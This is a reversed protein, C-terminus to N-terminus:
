KSHCWSWMCSILGDCTFSSYQLSSTLEKFFISARNLHWNNHCERCCPLMSSHWAVEVSNISFMTQLMYTDISGLPLLKSPLAHWVFCLPLLKFTWTHRDLSQFCCCGNVVTFLTNVIFIIIVVMSSKGASPGALDQIFALNLWLHLVSCYLSICEHMQMAHDFNM